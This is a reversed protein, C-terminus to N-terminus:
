RKREPNEGNPLHEVADAKSTDDKRDIDNGDVCRRKAISTKSVRKGRRGVDDGCVCTRSRRGVKDLGVPAPAVTNEANDKGYNCHRQEAKQLPVPVYSLLPTQQPRLLATSSRRQLAGLVVDDFEVTLIDGRESPTNKSVM